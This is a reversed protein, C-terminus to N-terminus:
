KPERHTYFEQIFLHPGRLIEIRFLEGGIFICRVAEGSMTLPGSVAMPFSM